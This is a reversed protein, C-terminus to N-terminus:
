SCLRDSILESCKCSCPPRAVRSQFYCIRLLEVPYLLGKGYADDLIPLKYLSCSFQWKTKIKITPYTCDQISYKCSRQYNSFLYLLQAFGEIKNKQQVIKLHLTVLSNLSNCCMAQKYELINTRKECKIYQFIHVIM